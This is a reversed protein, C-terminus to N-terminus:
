PDVNKYIDKHCEPCNMRKTDIVEEVSGYEAIKNTGEEFYGWQWCESVVVVSDIEKSCKPCKM